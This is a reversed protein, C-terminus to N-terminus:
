IKGTATSMTSDVKQFLASIQNTMGTAAAIIFVSILVAILAYEIATSGAEDNRFSKLLSFM